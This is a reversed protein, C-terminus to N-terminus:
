KEKSAPRVAAYLRLKGEGRRLPPCRRASPALEVSRGAGERMRPAKDRLRGKENEEGATPRGGCPEERSCM